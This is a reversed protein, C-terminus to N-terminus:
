RFVTRSLTRVLEFSDIPKVLVRDFPPIVEGERSRGGVGTLGIVPLSPGFARRAAEALVAGSIGTSFLVETVLATPRLSGLRDLAEEVCTFVLTNWGALEFAVGLAEVGDPYEDVLVVSPRSGHM